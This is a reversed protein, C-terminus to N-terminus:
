GKKICVTLVKIGSSEQSKFDRAAQTCEESTPIAQIEKQLIDQKGASQNWILITVFLTWM